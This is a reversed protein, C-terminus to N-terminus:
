AALRVVPRTDIGLLEAAAVLPAITTDYQEKLEARAEAEYAVAARHRNVIAAECAARATAQQENKTDLAARIHASLAARYADSLRAHAALAQDALLQYGEIAGALAARQQAWAAVGDADPPTSNYNQLRQEADALRQRAAKVASDAARLAEVEAPHQAAYVDLVARGLAGQSAQLAYIQQQRDLLDQDLKQMTAANVTM